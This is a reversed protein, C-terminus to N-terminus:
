DDKENRTRDYFTTHSAIITRIKEVDQDRMAYLPISFATFKLHRCIHQMFNLRCQFGEQPRLILIRRCQGPGAFIEESLAINKWKLPVNNDIKIYEDTVVAMKQPFFCVHAAALTFAFWLLIALLGAPILPYFIYKGFVVLGALVMLSFALLRKLKRKDYYFLAYLPKITRQNNM